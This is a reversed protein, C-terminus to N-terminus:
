KKGLFRKVKSMFDDAVPHVKEGCSEAFKSLMEMQEKNLNTPTEVILRVYHDGTYGNLDKIGKGKMRFLRGSQTGAPVKLTMQGQVTPVEVECGLAAKPFSIPVECIVNNGERQFLEHPKVQIDIYLDGAPGGKIGAEGHGRMKLRSGDDVGAPIKLKIKKSQKVRGEGRCEHCPKEAVKGTGACNSCPQEMMGFFSQIRIRGAGKCKPCNVTKSGPESGSGGCTPCTEPKTISIVKETGNVAEMFTVTARVRLSAGQNSARVEGGFLGGFLDGLNGFIDGFDADQAHSFNSWQFGGPGFQQKMGEAGFQDYQQRKQPDSLVEYAESVKKFMEEAKKDGPNRDPHYKMAMKRYAKKIEEQTATKEVELLKYYEDNM